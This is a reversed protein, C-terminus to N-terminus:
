AHRKIVSELEVPDGGLVRDLEEGNRILVFTSLTRARVESAVDDCDDVNCEYFEASKGSNSLEEFMPRAVRCPPAWTAWFHVVALKDGGTVSKFMKLSDITTVPM